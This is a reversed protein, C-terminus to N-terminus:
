DNITVNTRDQVTESISRTGLKCSPVPLVAATRNTPLDHRDTRRDTRALNPWIEPVPRGILKTKPMRCLAALGSFTHTLVGPAARWSRTYLAIRTSLTGLQLSPGARVRGRTILRFNRIKGVGSENLAMARPSGKRIEPHNKIGFVLTRLSETQSSKTIGNASLALTHRVSPWVDRRHSTCPKCLLSHQRGTFVYWSLVSCSRLLTKVSQSVSQCCIRGALSHASCPAM